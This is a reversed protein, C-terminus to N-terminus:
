LVHPQGTIDKNKYWSDSFMGAVGWHCVALSKEQRSNFAVSGKIQLLLRGKIQFDLPNNKTLTLCALEHKGQFEVGWWNIMGLM